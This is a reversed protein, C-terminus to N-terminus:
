SYCILLDSVGESRSSFSGEGTKQHLPVLVEALIADDDM